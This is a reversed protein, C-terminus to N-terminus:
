YLFSWLSHRRRVQEAKSSLREQEMEEQTPELQIDSKEEAAPASFEEKNEAADSTPPVDTPCLIL